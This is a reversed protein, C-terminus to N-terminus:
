QEPDIWFHHIDPNQLRKGTMSYYIMGGVTTLVVIVDYQVNKFIYMPVLPRYVGSYTEPPFTSNLEGIFVSLFMGYLM